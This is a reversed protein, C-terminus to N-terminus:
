APVPKLMSGFFSKILLDLHQSVLIQEPLQGVHVVVHDGIMRGLPVVVEYEFVGPWDLTAPIGWQGLRQWLLQIFPELALVLELCGQPWRDLLLVHRSETGRLFIATSAGPGGNSTFQVGARTALVEALTRGGSREIEDRDIISIDAVQDDLRTEQRTATVTVQPLSPDTPAQALTLPRDSGPGTTSQAGAPTAFAAGLALVGAATMAGASPSAPRLPKRAPHAPSDPIM